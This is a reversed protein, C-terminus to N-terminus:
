GGASRGSFIPPEGSATTRSSDSIWRRTVLAPRGAPEPQLAQRDGSHSQPRGRQTAQASVIQIEALLDGPPGNKPAVGHGKVRLKAGSSTGPPISLTVTEKPTPVDVKAGAVAEGLTVPVRVHLHNGRRHFYAHPLVRVTLLIDGPTGGRPRAPRPRPHPDEQRRRHGASDERGADRDQRFPKVVTLQM